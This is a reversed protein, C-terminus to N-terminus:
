QAAGGAGNAMQQVAAKIDSVDTAIAAMSFTSARDVIAKAQEPTPPGGTWQTPSQSTRSQSPDSASLSSRLNDTFEDMIRRLSEELIPVMADAARRGFDEPSLQPFDEENM